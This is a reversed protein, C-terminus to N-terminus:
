EKLRKFEYTCMEVCPIANLVLRNNNAFNMTYEQNVVDIDTDITKCDFSITLTTRKTEPATTNEVFAYKGQCSFRPDTSNGLSDFSIIHNDSTKDETVINGWSDVSKYEVLKWKGVVGAKENGAAYENDEKSCSTSLFLFVFLFLKSM